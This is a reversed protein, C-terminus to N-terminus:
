GVGFKGRGVEVHSLMGTRVLCGGLIGIRQCPVVVKAKDRHGQLTDLGM